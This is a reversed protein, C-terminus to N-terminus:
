VQVAELRAAELQLGTLVLRIDRVESTIRTQLDAPFTDQTIITTIIIHIGDSVVTGVPMIHTTHTDVMGVETTDVMTGLIMSHGPVEMIGHIIFVATTGLITIGVTTSIGDTSDGLVIILGLM